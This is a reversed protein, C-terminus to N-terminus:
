ALRLLPLWVRIHAGGLLQSRPLIDLAGGLEAVVERTTRIGDGGGPKTTYPMGEQLKARGHESLGPGSDHVDIVGCLGNVPPPGSGATDLTVLVAKETPSARKIAQVANMILSDIAIRLVAPNAVVILPDGAPRFRVTIDAPASLDASRTLEKLLRNLDVETPPSLAQEYIRKLQEGGLEQTLRAIARDISAATEEDTASMAKRLDDALTSVVNDNRHGLRDLVQEALAARVVRRAQVASEYLERMGQGALAAPDWEYDGSLLEGVGSRLPVYSVEDARGLLGSGALHTLATGADFLPEVTETVEAPVDILRVAPGLEEPRFTEDTFLAYVLGLALRAQPNGQLPELLRERLAQRAQPTRTTALDDSTLHYSDQDRLVTLLMELTSYVLAPHGGTQYALSDVAVADAGIGWLDLLWALSERHQSAAPLEIARTRHALAPLGLQPVIMRLLNIRRSPPGPPTTQGASLALLRFLHSCGLVAVGPPSTLDPEVEPIFWVVPEDLPPPPVNRPAVWLAIGDRRLVGLHPLRADDLGPLRPLWGGDRELVAPRLEEGLVAALAAAFTGVSPRDLHVSLQLVAQIVDRAPPGSAGQVFRALQPYPLRSSDEAYWLGIQALSRNPWEWVTPPRLVSRPGGSTPESGGTALLARATAFEGAEICEGVSLAWQDAGSTEALRATLTAREQAEAEEVRARMGALLERADALRQEARAGLDPEPTLRLGSRRARELLIDQEQEAQARAVRRDTRLRRALAGRAESTIADRIAATAGDDAAGQGGVGTEEDELVEEVLAFEGKDLLAAIGGASTTPDAMGSLVYLATSEADLATGYHLAEVLLPYRWRGRWSALLEPPITNM